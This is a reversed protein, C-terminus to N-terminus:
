VQREVALFVLRKALGLGSPEIGTERRGSVGTKLGARIWIARGTERRGSVGTKQGARIWIARYRDRSPWFCRDEPWTEEQEAWCGCGGGGRGWVGGGQTRARLM